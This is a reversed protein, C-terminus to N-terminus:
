VAGKRKFYLAQADVENWASREVEPLWGLYGPGSVGDLAQSLLYETVAVRYVRDPSLGQVSIRKGFPLNLSYSYSFGSVSLPRRTLPFSIPGGRPVGSRRSHDRLRE